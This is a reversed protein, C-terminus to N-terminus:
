SLGALWARIAANVAKPQELHPLHGAGDITTLVSNAIRENLFAAYKPPTMRDHAGVIVLTPVTIEGVREIEDFRDCAAYDQRTTAQGVVLHWGRILGRLDAGCQPAVSLDVLEDICEPWRKDIMDFIQKGVRLRAGSGILVLGSVESPNALAWEIAIASGLSNGCAIAPVAARFRAYKALWSAMESVDGLATGHPHGPLSIADSGPFATAQEAFAENTHGSGHVYLIQAM